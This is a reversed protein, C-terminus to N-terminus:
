DKGFMDLQRKMNAIALACEDFASYLTPLYALRGGRVVRVRFRKHKKDWDIHHTMDCTRGYDRDANHEFMVGGILESIM